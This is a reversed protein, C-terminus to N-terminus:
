SSKPHKLRLGFLGLWAAKRLKGRVRVLPELGGCLAMGRDFVERAGKRDGVYLRHKVFQAFDHAVRRRWVTEDWQSTSIGIERARALWREVHADLEVLRQLGPTRMLSGPQGGMNVLSQPVNCCRARLLLTYVWLLDEAVRFGTEFRPALGRRAVIGCIHADRRRDLFDAACHGELLHAPDAPVHRGGRSDPQFVQCCCLDAGSGTLAAMQLELKRPDWMDDDDLFALWQGTALELGTNRAAAVGGNERTVFRPTVGAARTESELGALVGATNDRSGDNVVCLELPRWTQALVSRVAAPLLEARNFTPMIVSVTQAM